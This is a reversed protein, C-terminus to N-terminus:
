AAGGSSGETAPTVTPAAAKGRRRRPQAQELAALTREVRRLGTLSLALLGVLVLAAAGYSSWVYAAYGGMSLFGDM